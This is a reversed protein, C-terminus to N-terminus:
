LEIHVFSIHSISPFYYMSHLFVYVQHYNSGCLLSFLLTLIWLNKLVSLNGVPVCGKGRARWHLVLSDIVFVPFVWGVQSSLVALLCLVVPFHFSPHCLVFYVYRISFSRLWIPNFGCPLVGVHCHFIRASFKAFSLSSHLFPKSILPQVFRFSLSQM